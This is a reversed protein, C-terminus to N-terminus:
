SRGRRWGLRDALGPADLGPVLGCSLAHPGTRPTQCCPRIVPVSPTMGDTGQDQDLTDGPVRRGPRELHRLVRSILSRM